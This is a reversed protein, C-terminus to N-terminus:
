TVAGEPIEPDYTGVDHGLTEIKGKFTSHLAYHLDIPTTNEPFFIHGFAGTARSLLFIVLNRDKGEYKVIGSSNPGKAKLTVIVDYPLVKYEYTYTKM